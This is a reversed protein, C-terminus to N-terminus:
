MDRDYKRRDAAAKQTNVMEVLNPDSNSRRLGNSNTSPEQEQSHSSTQQLSSTHPPTKHSTSSNFSQNLSSNSTKHTQQAM